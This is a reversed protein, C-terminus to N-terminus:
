SFTFTVQVTVSQGANVRVSNPLTKSTFPKTPQNAPAGQVTTGTWVLNIDVTQTPTARGELTMALGNPAVSLTLASQGGAAERFTAGYAAGSGGGGVRSGGIGMTWVPVQATRLVLGKLLEAGDPELANRFATRSVLTGDPNRVEIVWDGHVSVAEPQAAARVATFGVMLMALAIATKLSRISM